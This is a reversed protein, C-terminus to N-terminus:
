PREIREHQGGWWGPRPRNAGARWAAIAAFTVYVASSEYSGTTYWAAVAMGLLVLSGLRHIRYPAHAHAQVRLTYVALAVAAALAICM